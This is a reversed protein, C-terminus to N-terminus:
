IFDTAQVFEKLAQLEFKWKPVLKTNKFSLIYVIRVYYGLCWESLVEVLNEKRSIWLLFCKKDCESCHIAIYSSMKVPLLLSCSPMRYTVNSIKATRLLRFAVVLSPNSDLSVARFVFFFHKYLRYRAFKECCKWVGTLKSYVAWFLKVALQEPCLESLLDSPCQFM